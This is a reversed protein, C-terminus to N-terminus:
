CKINKKKKEKKKVYLKLITLAISQVIVSNIMGVEWVHKTIQCYVSTTKVGVFEVVPLRSVSRVANDKGM